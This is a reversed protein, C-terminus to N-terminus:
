ANILSFTYILVFRETFKTICFLGCVQIRPLARVENRVRRALLKHAATSSILPRNRRARAGWPTIIRSGPRSNFLRNYVIFRAFASQFHNNEPPVGKQEEEIKWTSSMRELLVGRALDHKVEHFKLNESWSFDYIKVRSGTRAARQLIQVLVLIQCCEEWLENPRAPRLMAARLTPPFACTGAHTFLM